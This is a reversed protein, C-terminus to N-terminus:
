CPTYLPSTLGLDRGPERVCLSDRDVDPGILAELLREREELLALPYTLPMYLMEQM